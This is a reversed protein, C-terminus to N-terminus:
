RMWRRPRPRRPFRCWAMCSGPRRKASAAAGGFAAVDLSKGVADSLIAGVINIAGQPSANELEASAAAMILVKRTPGVKCTGFDLNVVPGPEGEAVFPADRVGASSPVAVSTMGALDVLRGRSLLQIAASSTALSRFLGIVDLPPFDGTRGSKGCCSPAARM